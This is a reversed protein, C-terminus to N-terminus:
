RAKKRALIILRKSSSEDFDKLLYDGFREEIFFVATKIMKEVETHHYLSVKENFEYNDGKDSFKITKIIKGSEIKRTIFFIIESETKVESAVLTNKVNVSNMFDFVFLGNEMLSDYANQLVKEDDNVNDFYGFSTFLSLVYDYPINPLPSRMDHTLFTLNPLQTTKAKEISNKSIDIGTVTFGKEALYISHRGSGCALDLFSSGYDPKIFDILRDIFLCAEKTDRNKYLLNYYSTDFWLEFWDKNKNNGM